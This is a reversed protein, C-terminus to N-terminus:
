SCDQTVATASLLSCNWSNELPFHSLLVYATCALRWDSSALTGAQTGGGKSSLGQCRWERREPTMATLAPIVCVQSSHPTRIGRVTSQISLQWTVCTFDFSRPSTVSATCTPMPVTRSLRRLPRAVCSPVRLRTSCSNGTLGSASSGSPVSIRAECKAAPCRTSTAPVVMPFPKWPAMFRCPNPPPGAECPVERAWRARPEVPAQWSGPRTSFPFFIGPRMPPFRRVTM